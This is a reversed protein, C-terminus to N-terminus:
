YFDSEGKYHQSRGAFSLPKVRWHNKSILEKFDRARSSFYYYQCYNETFNCVRFIDSPWPSCHFNKLKHLAKSVTECLMGPSVFYQNSSHVTFCISLQGFLQVQLSISWHCLGAPFLDDTTYWLLLQNQPWYWKADENIISPPVSDAGLLNVSLVFILSAAWM